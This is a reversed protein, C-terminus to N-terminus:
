LDMPLKLHDHYIRDRYELLKPSLAGAIVPDTNVFSERLNENIPCLHVPLPQVLVAFTSWYSDLASLANGILFQSGTALQQELRTGLSRLIQAIRRPAAAVTTSRAM